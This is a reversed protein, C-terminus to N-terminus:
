VGECSLLRLRCPGEGDGAVTAVAAVEDHGGNGGFDFGFVIGEVPVEAIKAPDLMGILVQDGHIVAAIREGFFGVPLNGPVIEEGMLDRSEARQRDKEAAAIVFGDLGHCALCVDLFKGTEEVAGFDCRLAFGVAGVSRGETGPIVPGAIAHVEDGEVVGAM